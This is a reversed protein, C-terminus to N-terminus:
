TAAPEVSVGPLREVGVLQILTLIQPQAGRFVLGRGHEQLRRAVMALDVMLSPDAFELKSCDAVVDEDSRLAQSLAPRRMGQTSRDEDGACRLTPPQPEYAVMARRYGVIATLFRFVRFKPVSKLRALSFTMGVTSSTVSASVLTISGSSPSSKTSSPSM